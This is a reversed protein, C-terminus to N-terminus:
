VVSDSVCVADIRQLSQVEGEDTRAIGDLVVDADKRRKVALRLEREVPLRPVQRKGDPYADEIFLLEPTELREHLLQPSRAPSCPRPRPFPGRPSEASATQSAAAAAASPVNLSAPRPTSGKLVAAVSGGSRRSTGLRGCEISSCSERIADAATTSSANTM